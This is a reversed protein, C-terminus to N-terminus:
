TLTGLLFFLMGFWVVMSLIDRILHSLTIQLKQATLDSQISNETCETNRFSYKNDSDSKGTKDLVKNGKVERNNGYKVFRGTKRQHDPKYTNELVLGRVKKTAERKCQQM